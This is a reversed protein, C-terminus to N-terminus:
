HGLINWAMKNMVELGSMKVSIAKGFVALLTNEDMHEDMYM